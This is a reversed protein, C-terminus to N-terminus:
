VGALINWGRHGKRWAHSPNVGGPKKGTGLHTAPRTQDPGKEDGTRENRGVKKRM